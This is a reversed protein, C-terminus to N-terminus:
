AGPHGRHRRHFLRARRRAQPGPGRDPQDLRRTGDKRLYRKEIAYSDIERALMRRVAELDATLDDPHTIDQFTRTLMEDQSYGVIDCLKRNIRLWRGDPAVLAIGMAAQEFTAQFREESERLNSEANARRTLAEDLLDHVQAIEIINPPPAGPALPRALAAVARSLRRGALEGALLGTLMAGLLGLGLIIAMMILPQRHVERPIELVVSWPSVRSGLVYHGAADVDQEPNLGPPARRAISDGRGDLLALSWGSPLAVEDIREQFQRTEFITLMVQVPKGNRLVPVAIAVLPERAVPGLVIDGVAPKGTEVAIPAAAHGVPRPLPPLKTGLPVRTNFLMRMPEGVDAFIVHSGFSRAFGRAEQYLDPWRAPDDALPSLALVNLASIRAELNNDIANAVNRLLNTAELDLRAQVSRVSDITLWAALLLPPLICILILRTIFASLSIGARKERVTPLRTSTM